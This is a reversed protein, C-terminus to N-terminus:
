ISESGSAVSSKAHVATGCGCFPDLVIDGENSSASIIRELLEVPKQTPYHLREDARSNIPDIDTIVDQIPQGPAAELYRIFEPRGGQKAPWRVLGQAQMEEIRERPPLQSWNSPFQFWSPLARDHPPEWHRGYSAPDIARWPLGCDGARIGPGTLDSLRFQGREDMHRYKTELYKDSYTTFTRNWLYTATKSYYLLIDHVPGWRKARNHSSSRKWIVENRFNEKGFTADLLVKLYHSATPDCHLYLAGAPKLVLHLEILRVAMMALYAMMDNEGLFARVARLMNAAEANGSRMVDDFAREAGNDATWHWTDEFAEIQAQSQAGSPAKFLVNYSANSNFPPDLYILDVSEPPIAGVRLVELNDGYYLARM